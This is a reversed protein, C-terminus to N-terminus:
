AMKASERPPHGHKTGVGKVRWRDAAGPKRYGSENQGGRPCRAIRTLKRGCVGQRGAGLTYGGLSGAFLDWGSKGDWAM